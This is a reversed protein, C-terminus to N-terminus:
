TLWGLTDATAKSPRYEASTWGGYGMADLRAFCAAIDVKGTGPENRGPADAFQVHRIVPSFRALGEVPDDGMMAAHYIDYQLGVNNAGTEAVLDAGDAPRPVVFGPADVTNIPELLLTRGAIGFERAAFRLNSLLTERLLAPDAGPPAKGAICNIRENGLVEAYAIAKRVGERFDAERGPLCALGFDGASTNGMPLNFLVMELGNAKLLEALERADWAYPQAFEVAKFGASAAAGFRGTFPHEPFLFGLNAAFRPM